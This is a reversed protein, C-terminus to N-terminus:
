LCGDFAFDLDEFPNIRQSTDSKKLDSAGNNAPIIVRRKLLGQFLDERNENSECALGAMVEQRTLAGKPYLDDLVTKTPTDMEFIAKDAVLFIYDKGDARITKNEAVRFKNM